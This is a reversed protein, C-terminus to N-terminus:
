LTKVWQKEKSSTTLQFEARRLGRRILDLQANGYATNLWHLRKPLEKSIESRNIIMDDFLPYALKKGSIIVQLTSFPYEEVKDVLKVEVPNRYIYKYVHQLHPTQKILCWKYRGGFIRNIRASKKAITRSVERILYHMIESINSQPTMLLLHCHNSMLVFAGVQAAYRESVIALKEEFVDWVSQM